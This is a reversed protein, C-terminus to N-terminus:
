TLSHLAFVEDGRLELRLATLPLPAIGAIREGDGARFFSGHCRCVFEPETSTARSWHVACGNHSCERLVGLLHFDPKVTLVRARALDTRPAPVRIVYAPQTGFEFEKFDWLVPFDKLRAVRRAASQATFSSGTLAVASLKLWTRRNM